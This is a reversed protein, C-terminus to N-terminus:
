VFQLSRGDEGVWLDKVFLQFTVSGDMWGNMWGIMYKEREHENPVLVFYEKRKYRLPHTLILKRGNIQDNCVVLSIPV